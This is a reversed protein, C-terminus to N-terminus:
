WSHSKWLYAAKERTYPAKNLLRLSHMFPYGSGSRPSAVVFRLDLGQHVRNLNDEICSVIRAEEKGHYPGGASISYGGIFAIQSIKGFKSMYLDRYFPRWRKESYKFMNDYGCKGDFAKTLDDRIVDYINEPVYPHDFIENVKKEFEPDVLIAELKEADRRYGAWRAEYNKEGAKSFLGKIGFFLLGFIAILLEM